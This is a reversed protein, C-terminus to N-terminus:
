AVCASLCECHFRSQLVQRGDSRQDDASGRGRQQGRGRSRIGQDPAARSRAVAVIGGGDAD